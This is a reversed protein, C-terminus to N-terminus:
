DFNLTKSKINSELRFLLKLGYVMIGTTNPLGEIPMFCEILSINPATSAELKQTLRNPFM